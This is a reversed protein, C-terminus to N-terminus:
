PELTPTKPNSLTLSKPTPRNEVTVARRKGRVLACKNDQLPHVLAVVKLTALRVQPSAAAMTLVRALDSASRKTLQVGLRHHKVLFPVLCGLGSAAHVVAM